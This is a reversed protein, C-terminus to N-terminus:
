IIQMWHQLLLMLNKLEWLIQCEKPSIGISIKGNLIMLHGFINQVSNKEDSCITCKQILKKSAEKSKDSSWGKPIASIRQQKGDLEEYKYRPGIYQFHKTVYEDIILCWDPFGFNHNMSM